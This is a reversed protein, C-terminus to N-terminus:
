QQNATITFKVQIDNAVIDFTSWSGEGIAFDGRRITFSGAFIGKEGEEKFSSPVVVDITKGKITLKGSVEFKNDGLAKIAGSEFHAQPFAATNFWDKGAVEGNAEETGADISALAVDFVAKGEAPKAPDFKLTSTFENFKGDMAVGMQQYSFNIASQKVDVQTYEAAQTALPLLAALVSIRFLTKMM